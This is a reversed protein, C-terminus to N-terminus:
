PKCMCAYVDAAVQEAGMTTDADCLDFCTAPGCHNTVFCDLVRSCVFDRGAAHTCTDCSSGAWGAVCSASSSSGAVGAAGASAAAGAGGDSNGAQGSNGAENGPLPMGAVGAFGGGLEASGGASISASTGAESSGGLATGAASSLETARFPEGGCALLSVALLVLGTCSGRLTAINLM